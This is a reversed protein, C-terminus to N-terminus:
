SPDDEVFSYPAWPGTCSVAVEPYERQLMEVASNFRRVDAREVLYSARFESEATRIHRTSTVALLELPGLLTPALRVDARDLRVAVEVRDRLTELTCAFHLAHREMIVAASVLDPITTGFRFPVVAQSAMLEDVVMEHAWLADPFLRPHFGQDHESYALHLGPRRFSSVPADELGHVSVGHPPRHESIAYLYIM